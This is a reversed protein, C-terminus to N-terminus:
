NQVPSKGGRFSSTPKIELTERRRKQSLQALPLRVGYETSTSSKLILNVLMEDM